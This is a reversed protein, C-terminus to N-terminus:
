SIVQSLYFLWLTAPHQLPAELDEEPSEKWGWMKRDWCTTGPPVLDAPAEGSRERDREKGPAKHHKLSAWPVAFMRPKREERGKQM